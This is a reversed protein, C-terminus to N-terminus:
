VHVARKFREHIDSILPKLLALYDSTPATKEIVRYYLHLLNLLISANEFDGRELYTIIRSAAVLAEIFCGEARSYPKKELFDYKSGEIHVIKFIMTARNESECKSTRLEIEIWANIDRLVPAKVFKADKFNEPPLELEYVGKGWGRFVANYLVKPDYNFMVTACRHHLINRYTDTSIFPRMIICDLDPSVVGMLAVNPTKGDTHYTGVLAEYIWNKRIGLDELKM